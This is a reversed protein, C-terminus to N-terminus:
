VTNLKWINSFPGTHTHFCKCIQFNGKNQPYTIKRSVFDPLFARLHFDIKPGGFGNPHPPGGAGWASVGILIYYITSAARRRRRSSCNDGGGGGGGGEERGGEGGGAPRRRRISSCNEEM